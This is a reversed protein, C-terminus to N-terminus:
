LMVTSLAAARGKITYPNYSDFGGPAWQSMEGGKPADPNVYRLHPFDATLALDGFTSVGHAVITGAAADPAPPPAAPNQALVATGTLALGAALVLHRVMGDGTQAGGPRAM